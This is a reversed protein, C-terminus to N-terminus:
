AIDLILRLRRQFNALETGFPPQGEVTDRIMRLKDEASAHPYSIEDRGESEIPGTDTDSM